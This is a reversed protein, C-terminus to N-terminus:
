QKPDKDLVVDPDSYITQQQKQAKVLKGFAMQVCYEGSVLILVRTSILVNTQREFDTWYIYIIRAM